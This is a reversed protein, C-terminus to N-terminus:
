LQVTFILLFHKNEEVCGHTKVRHVYMFVYKSHQM